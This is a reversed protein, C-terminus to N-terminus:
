IQRRHDVVIFLTLLTLLECTQRFSLWLPSWRGRCRGLFCLSYTRRTICRMRSRRASRACTTASRRRHAAVASTARVSSRSPRHYAEVGSYVFRSGRVRDCADCALHHDYVPAAASGVVTRAYGSVVSSPKSRPLSVGVSAADSYTCMRKGPSRSAAPHFANCLVCFSVHRDGSARVLSSVEGKTM